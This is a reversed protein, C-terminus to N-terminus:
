RKNLCALSTLLPSSRGNALLRHEGFAGPKALTPQGRGEEGGASAAAVSFPM